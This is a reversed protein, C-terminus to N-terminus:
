RYQLALVGGVSQVSTITRQAAGALRFFREGETASYTIRRAPANIRADTVDRYPGAVSAASQLVPAYDPVPQSLIREIWPLHAALRTAYFASPQPLPLDPTFIWVSEEEEQYLGGVDFLAADFAASSETLRFPGDVSYNIGALKWTAGDQIFVAGGSDGPSLHAENPGAGADFSAQLLQGIRNSVNSERPLVDDGEVIATVQNQGWRIRADREGWGWGHLQLGRPGAINVPDGRLTGRGFVVLDKGVETLNTYIQAYFPFPDAVQWLRLDSQEDDFVATTTYAAGAFTFPDGVAGGVHRATIFYFPAIPTGLFIGWYGQFDWGSGNLEGTPASANYNPDDTAFLIVGSVPIAQLLPMAILAAVLATRRRASSMQWCSTSLLEPCASGTSRSGALLRKSFVNPILLLM